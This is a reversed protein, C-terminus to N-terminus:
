LGQLRDNPLNIGEGIVEIINVINFDDKNINNNKLYDDLQSISDIEGQINIQSYNNKSHESELINAISTATTSILNYNNVDNGIISIETINVIKNNGINADTFNAYENVDIDDGLIIDYTNELVLAVATGDYYKDLATYTLNLDKQYITATTNASTDILNYNTADTGGLSLGTINVTKNVGVNKDIFNGSSSAVSLNDNTIMGTFLSNSTDLTAATTGDYTKDSATIGTIATIDKATITATNNSITGTPLTYNSLLTSNNASFDDSTLITSITNADVVNKSNFSGATQTITLSDTGQIGSLIYDTASLTYINNGDYEKTINDKISATLSKKNITLEGLTNTGTTDFKFDNNLLEVSINSYTDANKFSTVNNGNYAFKYDTGQTLTINAENFISNTWFSNLLQESGNYTTSKNDLTYNVVYPGIKWVSGSDNYSLIPYDTNLNEDIVIDWSADRFTDIYKMEDTTKETGGASTLQGSTQNNWYSADININTGEIAGILGGFNSSGTTNSITYTNILSGENFKGILGGVNSNGVVDGTSYSNKINLTNNNQEVYGILGGINANGTINVSTNSTLVNSNNLIEGVLGGSNNKSYLIDGTSYSNTLTTNNMSGIISGTNNNGEISINTLKINRITSNSTIGFLGVNDSIPRNIYINSITHGLGDFKGSFGATHGIPTFGFNENDTLPNSDHDGLNWTITDNANINAGLVYSGSLNGNIGQLDTGTNSRANGLSNIVKWTTENLDSTQKTFFNDGKRLYIPANVYYDASDGYYFALQGLSSNITNNIYINNSANLTLKYISDWFIDSNVYIDGNSTDGDNSTENSSTDITSASTTTEITVNGSTLATEITNALTDDITIDVPDILWDKAKIKANELIKFDEGSTEVFGENAIIEGGVEIKGGHAFLEIEGTIDDLSNAKIIGTNNIVGRLLEDVANTTLFIEGGDAIISGSNKVLADLIGKNVTLEILSNGNLNISYENAGILNINGKIAEITGANQVEKSTLIAYGQNDVTITGLNIISNSTSNTFNYNGSNFDESSIESTTALLGSTNISANKGFLIGNSNLIWVQGNANLVGDIVSKENGIVKNLTISNINPQNFNVRENSNISFDQWNIIAKNSNQNINTTSTNQSITADGSIVTGNNPAALTYSITGLFLSSILSIKKHM